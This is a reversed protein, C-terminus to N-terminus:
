PSYILVRSKTIRFAFGVRHIPVLSICFFSWLFNVCLLCSCLQFSDMKFNMLINMLINMSTKKHYTRLNFM